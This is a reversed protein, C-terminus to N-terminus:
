ILGLATAFIGLIVHLVIVGTLTKHRYYVYGFLISIVLTMLAASISLHLHLIAFLASAILIPRMFHSEPMFRQLSGQGVGRAIFEQIASHPIYTILYFLLQTDSYNNLTAWTFLPEDAPSTFIKFLIVLPLLVIAILLGEKVARKWGTLTVGFVSLPAAQQRVAYIAPILILFLFLWRMALQFSPSEEAYDPIFSSVAFLLITAIYFRGFSNQEKQQDVLKQLAKVQNLNSSHLREAQTGAINKILTQYIGLELAHDRSLQLVTSSSKTNVTATATGNCLFGKEGFHTGPGLKSVVFHSGTDPDKSTVELEGHFLIKLSHYQNGQQVVTEGPDFTVIECADVLRSRDESSINALLSTTELFSSLDKRLNLLM